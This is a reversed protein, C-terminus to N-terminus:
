YCIYMCVCVVAGRQSNIPVKRGRRLERATLCYIVKEAHTILQNVAREKAKSEEEYKLNSKKRMKDLEEEESSSNDLEEEKHIPESPTRSVSDLFSTCESAKGLSLQSM